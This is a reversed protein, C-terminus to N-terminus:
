PRGAGETTLQPKFLGGYVREEVAAWVPNRQYVREVQEPTFWTGIEHDYDHSNLLPLQSVRQRQQETVETLESVFELFDGALHEMRFWRDVQFRNGDTYLSLREDPFDSESLDQSSAMPIPEYNPYVGWRAVHQARSLVWFPLRRMNMVLTKGAVEEAREGFTTHKVNSEDVDAFAIVEPFLLFLELTATGGTKPLHAWAFREGIVM